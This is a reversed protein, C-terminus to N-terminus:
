DHTETNNGWFERNNFDGRVGASERATDIERDTPTIDKLVNVFPTPVELSLIPPEVLNHRYIKESRRNQLVSM